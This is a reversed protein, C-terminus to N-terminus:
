LMTIINSGHPNLFWCLCSHQVLLGVIIQPIIVNHFIQWYAYLGKSIYYFTTKVIYIFCM